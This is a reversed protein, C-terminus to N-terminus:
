IRAFAMAAQDFSWWPFIRSVDLCDFMCFTTLNMSSCLVDERSVNKEYHALGTASTLRANIEV